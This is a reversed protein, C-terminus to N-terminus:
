LRRFCRVVSFRSPADQDIHPSGHSVPSKIAESTHLHTLPLADTPAMTETSDDAVTNSFEHENDDDRM